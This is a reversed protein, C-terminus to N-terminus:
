LRQFEAAHDGVCKISDTDCYVVDDPFQLIMKWLNRRAYATVWVGWAYSLYFKKKRIRDQLEATVGEATIPM